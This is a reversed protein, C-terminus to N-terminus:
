HSGHTFHRYNLGYRSGKKLKELMHLLCHQTSHGRRFGCLYKSFINDFYDYMQQYLLKEYIKSLTPLISVPRYNPIMDANKLNRPFEGKVLNLNIDDKLFSSLVDANEKLIKPPINDKQYAKSSDINRIVQCVDNELVPLFSFSDKQFCKAKINLISPHNRFKGFINDVPDDMNSETTFLERLLKTVERFGNILAVNTKAVNIKKRHSALIQFNKAVNIKATVLFLSNILIRPIHFSMTKFM